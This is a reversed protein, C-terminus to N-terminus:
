PGWEVRMMRDMWPTRVMSIGWPLQGLLIDVTRQEVRLVWDDSADLSVLGPRSLFEARLAAASTRGLADWHRIVADILAEAEDREDASLDLEREVPVDLPLGCLIKAVTTEHEPVVDDGTALHHLLGVARGPDDLRDPRDALGLGELFRPLFPHLLVVGAFDVPWSDPARPGIDSTPSRSAEGEGREDATVRGAGRRVAGAPDDGTVEITPATGRDAAADPWRAGVWRAVEPAAWRADDVEALAARVLAIEDPTDGTAAAAVALTLVTRRWTAVFRDGPGSAIVDSDGGHPPRVPASSRAFAAALAVGVAPDLRRVVEVVFTESFQQVLRGRRRPDTLIERGSPWDAPGRANREWASRVADELDTGPELVFGWPLRGTSLFEVFADLVSGAASRRVVPGDDSSGRVGAPEAPVSREILDAAGRRVADAIADDLDDLDDLHDLVVTDVDVDLRDVVLLDDGLDLSGFARSLAGAVVESVHDSLHRQVALGDRETGGVAVDVLQRRVIIAPETPM